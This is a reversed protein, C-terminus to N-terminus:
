LLGIKNVLNRILKIKNNMVKAENHNGDLIFDELNQKSIELDHKLLESLMVKEGISFQEKRM